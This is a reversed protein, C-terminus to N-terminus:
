GNPEEPQREPAPWTLLARELASILAPLDARVIKGLNPFDISWYSHVVINRLGIVDRWPFTGVHARAADGMQRAAEGIETFCNVLARCRIMDAGLETDTADSLITIADRASLLIHEARERDAAPLPDPPM